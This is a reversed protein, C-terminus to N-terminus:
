FVFDKICYTRRKGYVYVALLLCVPEMDKITHDEACQIHIYIQALKRIKSIKLATCRDEPAIVPTEHIVDECVSSTKVEVFFIQSKTEAIIDIEGLRGRRWGTERIVYGKNLLWRKALNEGLIGLKRRTLGSIHQYM